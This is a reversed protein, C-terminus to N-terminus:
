ASSRYLLTRNPLALPRRGLRSAAGEVQDLKVSKSMVSIM